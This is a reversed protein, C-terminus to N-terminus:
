SLDINKIDDLNKINIFIKIHKHTFSMHETGKAM